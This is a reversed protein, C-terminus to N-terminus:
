RAVFGRPHAVISGRGSGPGLHPTLRHSIASNPSAPPAAAKAPFAQQPPPPPVAIELTWGTGALGEAILPLCLPASGM